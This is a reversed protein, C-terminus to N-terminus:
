RRSAESCPCCRSSADPTASSPPRPPLPRRRRLSCQRRTTCRRSAAQCTCALSTRLPMWSTGTHPPSPALRAPYPARILFSARRHACVGTIAEDDYKDGSKFTELFHLMARTRAPWAGVAQLGIAAGANGFALTFGPERTSRAFHDGRWLKTLGALGRKILSDAWPTGSHPAGIVLAMGLALDQDMAPAGHRVMIDYVDDAEAGLAIGTPDLARYAAFLDFADLAGMGYGDPHPGELDERMKWWIGVGRVVFPAHVQKALSVGASRWVAGSGDGLLSDTAAGLHALSMMWRALYHAYQGDRDPAEGIRIGRPRGLVRQVDSVLEGAQDLYARRQTAVALSALLSVGFADTWLYRAYKPAHPWIRKRAMWQLRAEAYSVQEALPLAGVGVRSLAM